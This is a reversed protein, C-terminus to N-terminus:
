FQQPNTSPINTTSSGGEVAEGVEAAATRVNGIELVLAAEEAAASAAMAAQGAREAQGM